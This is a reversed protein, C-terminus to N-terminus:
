CNDSTRSSAAVPIKCSSGMGKSVASDVMIKKEGSSTKEVAKPMKKQLTHNEKEIFKVVRRDLPEM